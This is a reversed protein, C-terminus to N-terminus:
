QALGPGGTQFAVDVEGSRKKLEDFSFRKDPKGRDYAHSMIIATREAATLIGCFPSSQRLRVSREDEGELTALVQSVPGELIDRWEELAPRVSDDCSALWKDLVARAKTLVPPDHQFRRAILRDMELSRADIAQHPKMCTRSRYIPGGPNSGPVEQVGNLREVLSLWPGYGFPLFVVFPAPTGCFTREPSSLPVTRQRCVHIRREKKATIRCLIRM